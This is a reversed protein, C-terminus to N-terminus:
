PDCRRTARARRRACPRALRPDAIAVRHSVHLDVDHLVGPLRSAAPERPIARAARTREPQRARTRPYLPSESLHATPRQAALPRSQHNRRKRRSAHNRREQSVRCGKTRPRRVGHADAIHDLPESGRGISTVNESAPETVSRRNVREAEYVSELPEVSAEALSQDVALGVIDIEHGEEDLWGANVEPRQDRIAALRLIKEDLSV